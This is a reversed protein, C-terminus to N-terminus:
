EHNGGELEAVMKDLQSELDKCQQLVLPDHTKFYQKQLKRTERTLAMVSHLKGKLLRNIDKSLKLGCEFQNCQAKLQELSGAELEENSTGKCYNVCAVIRAAIKEDNEGISTIRGIHARYHGYDLLIDTGDAELKANGNAWPEQTHNQNSM